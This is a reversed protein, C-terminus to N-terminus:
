APPNFQWLWTETLPRGDLRLYLRIDVPARGAPEVDVFARWRKTGVVRHSYVNDVTGNSPTVVVEMTERASEPLDAVPAGEFDIVVKRKNRPRPQGPTGGLGTWTSVVRALSPAFPEEAVWHLRYRFPWESGAKVAPRPVWYAVINDHIEDNTPIEVLQVAGEGWGGVPEVWVSPRKNYFVGDDQYNEFNRDRQLLGFGRPNDDLFSSTRVAPPNNIPRWIREGSGTWLALGDSDHIQPRWDAALPRSNKGYWFMSTLPAVGMRAIDKRAYLACDIDMVVNEHKAAVMRFAGTISPGDMLTYIAIADPVGAVAGFWFRTFRPFEEPTPMATDIAIGRASLGYQDLAGSSRFHNTRPTMVRFGAFGLDPPLMEDWRRKTFRFFDPSYLIERAAGNEVLHIKVPSKFFKGLHFFQVPYPGREAWLTRDANFRITNYDDYDLRDLVDAARPPPDNFPASALRKAEGKLWEFSFREPAGLRLAGQAFALGGGLGALMPLAFANVLVARRSHGTTM